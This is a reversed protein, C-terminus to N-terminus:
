AIQDIIDARVIIGDGKAPAWKEDYKRLMSLFFVERACTPFVRYYRGKIQTSDFAYDDTTIMKRKKIVEPNKDEIRAAFRVPTEHFKIM